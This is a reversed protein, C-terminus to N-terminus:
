NWENHLTLSHLRMIISERGGAITEDINGLISCFFYTEPILSSLYLSKLNLLFINLMVYLPQTTRFSTGIVNGFLVREMETQFMRM